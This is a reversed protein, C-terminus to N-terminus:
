KGARRFKCPESERLEQRVPVHGLLLGVEAIGGQADHEQLGLVRRRFASAQLQVRKGNFGTRVDLGVSKSPASGNEM